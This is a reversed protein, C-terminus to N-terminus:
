HLPYLAYKGIALSGGHINMKDIDFKGVPKGSAFRDKAFKESSMAVVCFM